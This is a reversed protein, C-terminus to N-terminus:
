AVYDRVEGKRTVQFTQRLFEEEARSQIGFLDEYSGVLRQCKHIGDAAAEVEDKEEETKVCRTGSGGGVMEGEYGDTAM